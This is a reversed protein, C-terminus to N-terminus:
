HSSNCCTSGAPSTQECHTLETNRIHDYFGLKFSSSYFRGTVILALVLRLDWMQICKLIFTSLPPNIIDHLVSKDILRIGLVMSERSLHYFHFSSITVPWNPICCRLSASLAVM